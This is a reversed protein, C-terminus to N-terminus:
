RGLRMRDLRAVVLGAIPFCLASVLASPWVADFRVPAGGWAAVQWEAAEALAIFLCAVLWEVWYDRWMTRRDVIDMALMFLTWLVVALGLPSGRVLDDVFGLVGASWAPWPDARMLRWALLMLLGFDPWWGHDSVIPLTSFLIGLVVSIAPVWRWAPIPGRTMKGRTMRGSPRGLAARAM